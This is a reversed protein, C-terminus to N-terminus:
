RCLIRIIDALADRWRRFYLYALSRGSSNYRNRIYSPSPFVSDMFLRIKKRMPLAKMSYLYLSAHSKMDMSQAKMLLNTYRSKKTGTIAAPLPEGFIEEIYNSVPRLFDLRGCDSLVQEVEDWDISDNWKKMMFYTEYLHSLSMSAMGHEIYCHLTQLVFSAEPSLTKLGTSAKLFPNEDLPLIQSSIWLSLRNGYSLHYNVPSWHFEIMFRFPTAIELAIDKDYFRDNELHDYDLSRRYGLGTLKPLIDNATKKDKILVDFDCMNRLSIDEYLNLALASGKLLTVPGLDPLIEPLVREGFEKYRLQNTHKIHMRTASLGLWIDIPIHELLHKLQPKMSNILGAAGEGSAIKEFLEWDSASYTNWCAEGCRGSLCRCIDLYIVSLNDKNGYRKKLADLPITTNKQRSM